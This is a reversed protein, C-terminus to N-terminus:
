FESCTNVIRYVCREGRCVVKGGEQVLAAGDSM